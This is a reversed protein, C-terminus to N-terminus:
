RSDFTSALQLLVDNEPALLLAKGLVSSAEELRGHNYLVVALNALTIPDNPRTSAANRLMEIAEVDRGIAM